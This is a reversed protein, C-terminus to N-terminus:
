TLFQLRFFNCGLDVPCYKLSCWSTFFLLGALIVFFLVSGILKGLSWKWNYLCIQTLEARRLINWKTFFGDIKHPTFRAKELHVGKIRVKWLSFCEIFLIKLCNKFWFFRYRTWYLSYSFIWWSQSWMPFCPCSVVIKSWKIGMKSSQFVKSCVSFFCLKSYIKISKCLTAFHAVQWDFIFIEFM